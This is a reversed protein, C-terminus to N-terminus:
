DAFDPTRKELFASVGERGDPSGALTSIGRAEAEMQAELDHAFSAGLLAKTRALSARAGRALTAAMERATETLADDPVARTVLGWDVAEAATLQRNLFILEAARRVGVLRPLTWTAAGDPSLGAETYAMLFRASQAAVVIDGTMALSFGAGAAMGNVAIILPADMGRFVAIARHLDDALAKVTARPDDASAMEKLDGGACFFRGTGTLIVVRPGGERDCRLAAAYLDRGLAANLGNASDPRNLTITAIGDSETLTLTEFHPDAM